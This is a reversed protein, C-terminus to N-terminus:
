NKEGNKENFDSTSNKELELPHYVRTIDRPTFLNVTWRGAVKFRKRWSPYNFLYITRWLWWAFRGYFRISMIEAAADWQGLSLLLGKIRYSFPSLTRGRILAEINRAAHRAEKVAVQALMPLPRGDSEVGFAAAVDGVAFVDPSGKVRLFEDVLIREGHDTQIDGLFLPTVPKVGATWVLLSAPIEKGDDLEVSRRKVRMVTRALLLKVGKRQLADATYTRVSPHFQPVVETSQGLLTISVDEKKIGADSFYACLSTRAFEAIEAVVEVGTPGAGVVVFSLEKRRSAKDGAAVAREFQDILRDRITNADAISKLPSLPTDGEVVKPMESSAGTALVLYDFSYREGGTTEVVKSHTTIRKVEAVVVRIGSGRFVERLPEIVSDAPLGGTAVEHLLPTFLFHNDKSILTLEILGKQVLPILYLGTYVGGFGGGIIVVRKKM